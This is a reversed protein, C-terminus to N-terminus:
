IFLQKKLGVFNNLLTKVFYNQQTWGFLKKRHVNNSLVSRQDIFFHRLALQLIGGHSASPLLGVHVTRHRLGPRSWLHPREKWRLELRVPNDLAERLIRGNLTCVSSGELIYVRPWAPQIRGTSPTDIWGVESSRLGSSNENIHFILRLVWWFATTKANRHFFVLFKTFV